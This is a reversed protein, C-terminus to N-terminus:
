SVIIVAIIISLIICLTGCNLRRTNRRENAANRDIRVHDEFSNLISAYDPQSKVMKARDEIRAPYLKEM